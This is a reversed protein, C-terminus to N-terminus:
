ASGPPSSAACSPTSTPASSTMVEELQATMRATNAADPNFCIVFRQDEAISV